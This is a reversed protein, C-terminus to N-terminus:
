SHAPVLAKEAILYEPCITAIRPNKVDAFALRDKGSVYVLPVQQDQVGVDLPFRSWEKGDVQTRIQMRVAITNPPMDEFYELEDLVNISFHDDVSNNMKDRIHSRLAVGRDERPMSLFRQAQEGKTRIMLDIDQTAPSQETLYKTAIGGITYAGDPDIKVLFREYAVERQFNQAKIKDGHAFEQIRRELEERFQKASSYKM